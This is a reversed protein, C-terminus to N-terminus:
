WAGGRSRGGGGRGFSGGISRGGSGGGIRGFGGGGPRWGGFGGGFPGRRNGGALISGIISGIIAGTMDSGWDSGTRYPRGGIVVTGRDRGERAVEESALRYAEDALRSAEAAQAAAEAPLSERRARAGDLSREAEALRTRARRGIATRRAAIFDSARDVSLEAARVAADAAAREKALREEGARVEAVIRDAEAEAEKALRYTLVIDRDAGSAHREAQKLKDEAGSAAAIQGPDARRGVAERAAAVDARATTLQGGLEDRAERLVGSAADIADLLRIAQGVTDQVAQAARAAASRDGRDLASRGEDTAKTALALRKRAEVVHGELSRASSPSERGLEALAEAAGDLRGKVSDIRANQDALVEPARRELDRLQDFRRTQEALLDGARRCREVIESLLREREAPGEPQADDLQQRLRFATKLESRATTLAERFPEVAAKGFQAEAFGLEQENHRILEDAEVLLANAERALRGTRRDREEADLTAARRTQWWRWILWLGGGILAIALIGGFFGLGGTGAGGAPAEDEGVVEGLTRAAEAIAEGWGEARLHDEMAVGVRDIEADSLALGDSVWVAYRRDDIALVVLADNGGLGNAAAVEDAYEPATLEGSTDILLAFLQAEGARQLEDIAAEATQRQSDSLVGALDTIAEELRPVDQAATPSPTGALATAVLAILAASILARRYLPTPSM